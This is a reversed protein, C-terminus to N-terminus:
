LSRSPFLLQRCFTSRVPGCRYSPSPEHTTVDRFTFRAVFGSLLSAPLRCIPRSFTFKIASVTSSSPQEVPHSVKSCTPSYYSFTNHTFSDNHPFILIVEDTVLTFFLLFQAASAAVVVVLLFLLIQEASAVVVVVVVLLFLLIQAASAVM